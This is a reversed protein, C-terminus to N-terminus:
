SQLSLGFKTDIVSWPSMVPNNTNPNAGKMIGLIQSGAANTIPGGSDGNTAIIDLEVLNWNVGNYTYQSNPNLVEGQQFDSTVGFMVVQTGQAPRATGESTIPLYLNPDRLVWSHSSTGTTKTAYACDCTSEYRSDASNGIENFWGDVPQHLQDGDNLCHGATIFGVATGKKVPLGLTCPGIGSNSQDQIGGVIPDCDSTRSNCSYDAAMGHTINVQVDEPYKEIIKRLTDDYSADSTSVTIGKELYNINVGYSHMGVSEAFISVEDRLESVISLIYQERAPEIYYLAKRQNEYNNLIEMKKSIQADLADIARENIMRNEESIEEDLNQQQLNLKESRMDHVQKVAVTFADKSVSEKTPNNTNTSTAADVGEMVSFPLIMAAILSAFLITKVYKSTMVVNYFM